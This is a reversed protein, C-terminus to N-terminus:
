LRSISVCIISWESTSAYYYCQIWSKLVEAIVLSRPTSNDSAIYPINVDKKGLSTNGDSSSGSDGNGCASLVIALALTALLGLVKFSSKKFM